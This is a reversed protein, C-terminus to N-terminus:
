HSVGSVNILSVEGQEKEKTEVDTLMSMWTRKGFLSGDYFTRLIELVEPYREGFFLSYGATVVASQGSMIYPVSYYLNSDCGQIFFLQYQGSFRIPGMGDQKAIWDFNWFNGLGSHGWYTVIDTKEIAFRARQAFNKPNPGRTYSLSLWLRIAPTTETAARLLEVYPQKDRTPNALMNTNALNAIQVFHEKTTLQKFIQNFNDRSDSDEKNPEYFGLLSAIRLEGRGSNAQSLLRQYDPKIDPSLQPIAKVQAEVREVNQRDQETKMCAPKFINWDYFFATKDLLDPPVCNSSFANYPNAPFILKIKRPAEDKDFLRFNQQTLAQMTAFYKVEIHDHRIERSLIFYSKLPGAAIVGTDDIPKEGILTAYQNRRFVGVLHHLQLRIADEVAKEDNVDTGPVGVTASFTLELELGSPSIIDANAIASLAIVALISLARLLNM